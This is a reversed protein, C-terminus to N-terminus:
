NKTRIHICFLLGKTISISASEALMENSISRTKYPYLIENQLPYALGNTVVGEVSGAWPVLSVTDGKKGSIIAQGHIFFAETLGDELRIEVDGAEPGSLLMINGLTQDLRGGFAGLILVPEFGARRAHLVALELDTEDKERPFRIVEVSQEVFGQLDFDTLSDMDGIIVHPRVGIEAAFKAGGDAAIIYDDPRIVARISEIHKYEGNAFILARRM